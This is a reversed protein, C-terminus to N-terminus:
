TALVQGAHGPRTGARTLKLGPLRVLESADYANQHQRDQPLRLFGAISDFTQRRPDGSRPAAKLHLLARTRTDPSITVRDADVLDLMKDQHRRPDGPHEARLQDTPSRSSGSARHHARPPTGLPGPARSATERWIGRLGNVGNLILARRLTPAARGRCDRRKLLKVSGSEGISEYDRAVYAALAPFTELGRREWRYLGARTTDLIFSPPQRRLDDLLLARHRPDILDGVDLEGRQSATNGAVYGTLSAQPVVFRSAPPLGSAVYFMPAYGWVFLTAGPFCPDMRLREAVNRFVPRTEAYVRASGLYLWGNAATFGSFLLLTYAVLRRGSRSLPRRLLPELAPAASLSLPIYFQVFYHPFFRFGLCAAPITALVLGAPAAPSRRCCACGRV